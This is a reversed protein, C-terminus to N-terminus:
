DAFKFAIIRAEFTQPTAGTSQLQLKIVDGATLTRAELGMLPVLQADGPNTVDAIRGNGVNVITNNIELWVGVRAASNNRIEAVWALLYKGTVNVTIAESTTVSILNAGSDFLRNGIVLYQGNTKDKNPPVGAGPSTPSEYFMCAASGATVAQLVVENSVDLGLLNVVTGSSVNNLTLTGNTTLDNITAENAVNLDNVVLPDPITSAPPDGFFLMGNADTQLFLGLTSPGQLYRWRYDSGMVVLNGFSTNATAEYESLQVQPTTTWTFGANGSGNINSVLFGAGTSLRRECFKYDLVSLFRGPSLTGPDQCEGQYISQAPQCTPCCSSLSGSGCSCSM